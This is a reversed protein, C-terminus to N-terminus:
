KENSLYKLMEKEYVSSENEETKRLIEKILFLKLLIIIEPINIKESIYTILEKISLKQLLFGIQFYYKILDMYELGNEEFYEFDFPVYGNQTHVINWPAFDGHEYVEHYYERSTAICDELITVYQFLKTEELQEKLQLIRPHDKLCYKKDKKFKHLLANIDNKSVNGINGQLEHLLLFPTDKFNDSLMVPSVIIEKSLIEIANQENIIRRVGTQNLPFKLYGIIQHNNQLQLVVKDKATAFYISSVLQLNLKKELYQIFESSSQKKVPAVKRLWFNGNLFLFRTIKKLWKAKESFPNYLKFANNALAKNDIALAVKPNSATPLYLYTNISFFNIANM